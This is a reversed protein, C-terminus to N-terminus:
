CSIVMDTMHRVHNNMDINWSLRVQNAHANAHSEM